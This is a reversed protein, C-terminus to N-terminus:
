VFKAMATILPSVILCVIKVSSYLYWVNSQIATIAQLHWKSLILPIFFIRESMDGRHQMKYTSAHIQFHAKIGNIHSKVYGLNKSGWMLKMLTVRRRRWSVPANPSYGSLPSCGWCMSRTQVTKQRPCIWVEVAVPLVVVPHLYNEQLESGALIPNLCLLVVQIM